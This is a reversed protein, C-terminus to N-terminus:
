ATKKKEVLFSDRFAYQPVNPTKDPGQYEKNPQRVAVERRAADFSVHVNLQPWTYDWDKPVLDVNRQIVATLETRYSTYEKSEKGFIVCRALNGAVQDLQRKVEFEQMQKDALVGLPMYTTVLDVTGNGEEDMPKFPSSTFEKRKNIQAKGDEGIPDGLTVLYLKGDAAKKVVRSQSYRQDLGTAPDKVIVEKSQDLFIMSGIPADKSQLWAIQDNFEARNAAVLKREIDLQPETKFSADVGKGTEVSRVSVADYIKVGEAGGPAKAYAPEAIQIRLAKNDSSLDLM